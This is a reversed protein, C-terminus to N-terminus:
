PTEHFLVYIHDDHRAVKCSNSITKSNGITSHLHPELTISQINPQKELLGMLSRTLSVNLTADSLFPRLWLYDWRLDLALRKSIQFTDYPHCSRPTEPLVFGGYGFPSPPPEYAESSPNKWFFALDIGAGKSHNLHPFMHMYPLPFNADLYLIPTQPSLREMQKEVLLLSDLAHQQIYNRNCLCTIHSVPQLNRSSSCPLAHMGWLPSILPLIIQSGIGYSAIPYVFRKLRLTWGIDHPSMSLFPWILLGGIQTVITLVLVLLLYLLTYFRTHQYFPGMLGQKLLVWILEKTQPNM